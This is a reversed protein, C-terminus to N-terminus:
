STCLHNIAFLIENLNLDNSFHSTLPLFREYRENLLYEILSTDHVENNNNFFDYVYRNLVEHRSICAMFSIYSLNNSVSSGSGNSALLACLKVIPNQSLVLCKFFKIFRICLQNIFPIDQCINHILACHTTRPLNLLSRICKRWTIHLREISPDGLDILSVGFLPMCHSKFLFYM